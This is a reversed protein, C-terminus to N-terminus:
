LGYRLKMDQYRDFVRRSHDPTLYRDLLPVLIERLFPGRAMWQYYRRGSHDYPGYLKSDPLKTVLWSFLAEHDSHM